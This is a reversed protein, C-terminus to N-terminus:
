EGKSLLRYIGGYAVGTLVGLLFHEALSHVGLEVAFSSVLIVAVLMGVYYLAKKKM